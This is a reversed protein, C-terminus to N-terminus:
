PHNRWADFDARLDKWRAAANPDTNLEGRSRVNLISRVRSAVRISDSVDEVGHREMLYRRFLQDGCKMACEASFDKPKAPPSSRRGHNRDAPQQQRIAHFAEGLLRLLFAVDDRANMLFDRDEYGCDAALSVIQVPSTGPVVRALLSEGDVSLSWDTSAQDIRNWIASLRARDQDTAM